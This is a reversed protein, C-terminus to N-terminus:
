KSHQFSFSTVNFANLIRSNNSTSLCQSKAPQAVEMGGRAFMSSLWLAGSQTLLHATIRCYQAMHRNDTRLFIRRMSRPFISHPSLAPFVAKGRGFKVAGSASPRSAFLIFPRWGYGGAAAFRQYARYAQWRPRVSCQPFESSLSSLLYNQSSFSGTARSRSKNRLLLVINLYSEM